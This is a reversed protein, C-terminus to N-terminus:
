GNNNDNNMTSTGLTANILNHEYFSHKLNVLLKFICSPISLSFDLHSFLTPHNPLNSLTIKHKTKKLFFTVILETVLTLPISLFCLSPNHGM